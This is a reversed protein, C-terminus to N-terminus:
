RAISSCCPPRAFCCDGMMAAHRFSERPCLVVETWDYEFQGVAFQVGGSCGTSSTWVAASSPPWRYPTAASTTSFTPSTWTMRIREAKEVDHRDLKLYDDPPKDDRFVRPQDFGAAAVMM